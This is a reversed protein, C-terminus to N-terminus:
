TGRCAPMSVEGGPAAPAGPRGKFAVAAGELCCRDSEEVRAHQARRNYSLLVLLLYGRLSSLAVDGGNCVWTLSVSLAM